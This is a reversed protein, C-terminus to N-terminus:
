KKDIGKETILTTIAKEMKKGNFATWNLNFTIKITNDRSKYKSQAVTGAASNLSAMEPSTFTGGMSPIDSFKIERALSVQEQLILSTTRLEMVRRLYNFSLIISTFFISTVVIILSIAILTEAITFSKTNSIKM